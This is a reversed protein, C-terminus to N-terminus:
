STRVAAPQERTSIAEPDCLGQAGAAACALMLVSARMPRALDLLLIM